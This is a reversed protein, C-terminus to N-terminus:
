ITYMFPEMEKQETKGCLDCSHPGIRLYAAGVAQVTSSRSRNNELFLDDPGLLEFLGQRRLMDVHQARIGCLSHHVGRQKETRIFGILEDAVPADLYQANHIRLIKEKRPDAGFERLAAELSPMAGFFFAGELDM